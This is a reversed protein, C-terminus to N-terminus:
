NFNMQFLKQKANIKTLNVFWYFGFEILKLLMATGLALLVLWLYILVSYKPKFVLDPFLYWCFFAHSLWMYMSERGLFSVVHDLNLRKVIDITYFVMLPVYIADFEFRHRLLYVIILVVGSLVLNNKGSLMQKYKEFLDYKAFILGVVFCLQFPMFAKIYLMKFIVLNFPPYNLVTNPSAFILLSTVTLAYVHKKVLLVLLPTLVILEIYLQVFWWTSNISKGIGMIALIIQGWGKNVVISENFALGVLYFVFFCIWYSVMFRLLKKMIKKTVAMSSLNNMSIFMGYGSLFLFISICIRGFKFLNEELNSGNIKLLSVYHHNGNLHPYCFLHFGIMLLIAVGKAIDSENKTM